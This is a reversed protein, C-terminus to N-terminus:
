DKDLMNLLTTVEDKDCIPLRNHRLLSTIFTRYLSKPYEVDDWYSLIANGIPEKSLPHTGENRFELFDNVGIQNSM